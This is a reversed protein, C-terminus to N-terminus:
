QAVNRALTGILLMRGQNSANRSLSPNLVANVKMAHYFLALVRQAKASHRGLMDWGHFVIGNEWPKSTRFMLNEGDIYNSFMPNSESQNWILDTFTAAMAQVDRLHFEIGAEYMTVVMMAERNAHSTDPTGAQGDGPTIPVIGKDWIWRGDQEAVHRRFGKAVRTAYELYLPKRTALYMWTSIMGLHSCKDNWVPYTGWGGLDKAVWPVMGGLRPSAPDPYIGSKKDFWYRFMAQDVFAVIQDAKAGYRAKFQPRRAIIAATRALPGMAQFTNLQQPNGNVDWPGWELYTVGGRTLPRAQAMFQDIFGILQDMIEFDGSAEAGAALGHLYYSTSYYLAADGKAIERSIADHCKALHRKLDALYDPVESAMAPGAGTEDPPVPPVGQAYGQILLAAGVSFFGLKWSRSNWASM